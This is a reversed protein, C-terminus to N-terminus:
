LGTRPRNTRVSMRILWMFRPFMPAEIKHAGQLSDLWQTGSRLSLIRIFLRGLPLCLSNGPM